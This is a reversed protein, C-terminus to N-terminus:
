NRLLEDQNITKWHIGEIINLKINYKSVQDNINQLRDESKLTIVYYDIDHKNSSNDFNENYIITINVTLLLYIILILIIIIIIAIM